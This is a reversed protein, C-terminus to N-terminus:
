FQLRKFPAIVCTITLSLAYPFSINVALYQVTFLAGMTVLVMDSLITALLLSQGTSVSGTDANESNLGFFTDYISINFTSGFVNIVSPLQHHGIHTSHNGGHATDIVYSYLKDGHNLVHDVTHSSWHSPNSFRSCFLLAALAIVTCQAGSQGFWPLSM